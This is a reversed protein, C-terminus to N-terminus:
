SLVVCADFYDTAFDFLLLCDVVGAVPLKLVLFVLDFLFAHAVEVVFAFQVLGLHLLFVILELLLLLLVPLFILM